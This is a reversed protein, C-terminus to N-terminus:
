RNHFCCGGRRKLSLTEKINYTTQQSAECHTSDGSRGIWCYLRDIPGVVIRRAVDLPPHLYWWLHAHRSNGYVAFRSLCEEDEEVGEGYM